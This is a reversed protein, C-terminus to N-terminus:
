SSFCKCSYNGRIKATLRTHSSLRSFKFESDFIVGLNRVKGTPNLQNGLIDVPFFQKLSTQQKNSGYIIFETKDPNLKLKNEAM